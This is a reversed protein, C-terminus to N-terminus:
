GRDRQRQVSQERLAARGAGLLSLGHAPPHAIVLVATVADKRHSCTSM